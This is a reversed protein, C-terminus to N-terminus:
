YVDVDIGLPPVPEPEPEPVMVTVPRVGPVAYVNVTVAVFPTPLEAADAADADTM